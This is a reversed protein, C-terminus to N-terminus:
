VGEVTILSPFDFARLLPIDLQERAEMNQGCEGRLLPFDQYKALEYVDECSSSSSVSDGGPPM